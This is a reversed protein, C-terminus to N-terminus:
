LQEGNTLVYMMVHDFIMHIDETIQMNNIPVHMCVDGIERLKGGDYGTISIVTAGQEKAYQAAKIVNESNGSGSIGVFTDNQTIKEKIQYEFVSEYNIDNAIAMMIPVNDNLCVFNYKKEKTDSIGKNFDCVFHSATAASGGNGCIYINGSRLRTKELQNMALSIMEIDINQLVQIEQQLYAEVQMKYDKM